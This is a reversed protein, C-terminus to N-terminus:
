KASKNKFIFYGLSFLFIIFILILIIFFIVQLFWQLNNIGNKNGINGGSLGSVDMNPNPIYSNLESPSYYEKPQIFIQSEFIGYKDIDNNKDISDFSVPDVIEENKVNVQNEICFNSTLVNTKGSNCLYQNSLPSGFVFQVGLNQWSQLPGTNDWLYLFDSNNLWLIPAFDSINNYPFSNSSNLFYFSLTIIIPQGNVLYPIPLGGPLYNYRGSSNLSLPYELINITMNNCICGSGTQAITVINYAESGTPYSRTYGAVYQINQTQASQKRNSYSDFCSLTIISGTTIEDSQDENLLRTGRPGGIVFYMIGTNTPTSVSGNTLQLANMGTVFKNINTSSCPFYNQTTSNSTSCSVVDNSVWGAIPASGYGNPTTTISSTDPIALAIIDGYKMNYNSM